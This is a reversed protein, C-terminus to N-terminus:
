VSAGTGRSVNGTGVALSPSERTTTAAGRFDMGRTGRTGSTLITGFGADLGVETTGEPIPARSVEGCAHNIM